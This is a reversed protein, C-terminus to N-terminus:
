ISYQEKHARFFEVSRELGERLDVKPRWGTVFHFQAYSGYYDGIDIMAKDSPFPVTEFTTGCLEKLITCFDVLSHPKDAALNYVKGYCEETIASRMIAEVVDDVYNFDRRQLGTGFLKLGQGRLARCLFVGAMGQRDNTVQQRPGYTNTLRLVVSRLDYVRHYLLHYYEAALKNIGNVDVPEIPHHEDVPLRQPRGYVQRTSTNVLIARPNHYRCAEVLRITAVCNVGLDLDPDRMSDGHSVQGALHFIFDKGKVLPTLVDADRMDAVEVRVQKRVSDVNYHNGGHQPIMADIITVEAGAEVLAIALNSGIFGLGGTVLVQKNRFAGRTM